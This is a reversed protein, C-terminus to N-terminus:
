SGVLSRSTLRMEAGTVTPVTNVDLWILTIRRDPPLRSKANAGALSKLRTDRRESWPSPDPPLCLPLSPNLSTSRWPPLTSPSSHASCTTSFLFPIMSRADYTQRITQPWFALSVTSQQYTRVQPSEIAASQKLFGIKPKCLGGRTCFTDSSSDTETHHLSTCYKRGALRGLFSQRGDKPRYM